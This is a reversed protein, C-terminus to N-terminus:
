EDEDSGPVYMARLVPKHGDFEVWRFWGDTGNSFYLRGTIPEYGVAEPFQKRAETLVKKAPTVTLMRTLFGANREIRSKLNNANKM